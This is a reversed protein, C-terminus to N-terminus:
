SEMDLIFRDEQQIEYLTYFYDKYLIEMWGPKGSYSTELRERYDNDAILHTVGLAQLEFLLVDKEAPDAWVASRAATAYAWIRPTKTYYQDGGTWTLIVADEVLNNEVFSWVPYSRVQRSLYADQSEAGIVVGWEVGHLVHNLWGDWGDRDREHLFTFPPLNLFLLVVLGASLLVPGRRGLSVRAAGSLRSFGSAALVAMFPTLPVLFRMQFSSVPSAWLVLFLFIFGLLWVVGGHIRRLFLFPIFILFLPGLAGHYAAGHVTMHWPLSLLNGFTRPRGFHDLFQQLGALTVADWREPPAGFIGYLEPFVPNGTALFSRAYWPFAPLIGFVALLFAPWLAAQLSGDKKWLYAFLGLVGILLFFLALHKSAIAMGLNFAALSFWLMRRTKGYLLLAYVVLATHFALALDIYATSAEWMVTPVTVFLAVALWPSARSGFRRALEFVMLATMPLMAFHLLKAGIEGGLSLGYGFWLEWTMPYLSVYDYVQDVLRGQELYLRPYYLHYWLADYEREPALAAIFSFGIALLICAVWIKSSHPKLNLGDASFRPFSRGQLLWRGAWFIVPIAILGALVGPLYLGVAALFLGAGAFIGIGISASFALREGWREFSVRLTSFVIEGLLVASLMLIGASTTGAAARLLAERIFPLSPNGHFSIGPLDGDLILKWLQLYYSGLVAALWTLGLGLIVWSHFRPNVMAIGTPSQRLDKGSEAVQSRKMFSGEQNLKRM